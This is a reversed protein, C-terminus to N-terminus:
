NNSTTRTSYSYHSQTWTNLWRVPERGYLNKDVGLMMDQRIKAVATAFRLRDGEVVKRMDATLPYLKKVKEVTATDNVWTDAGMPTGTPLTGAELFDRMDDNVRRMGDSHCAICSAGTNLRQNAVPFGTDTWSNIAADSASALLNYDRVILTFADIRRQNFGGLLEYGQLGNPLDWIVEEASQQLGATGTYYRCNVFDSSGYNTQGECGAPESSGKTYAQALTAFFSFDNASGFTGQPSIAVPIPHAWFPWKSVHDKVVQRTKDEQGTFIDFTKWYMGGAKTRARFLLRSDVTIAQHVGMWQYSEIGSAHDVGLENELEISSPPLAMISSYADPRTLTYVLQGAEVYSDKFGAVNAPPAGAGEVNGKLVRAWVLDAFAPDQSVAPAFNMRQNFFSQTIKTGNVDTANGFIADDDSGGWLLKTIGKNYGWYSRADFRYVLGKGDIDTPNVIQPAWRAVSNLAKSVAVRAVNLEEATAGSDHIEHLSVYKIYPADAPSVKARDAAIAAVVDAEAVQTGQPTAWPVAPLPNSLASAWAKIATLIQNGADKCSTGFCQHRDVTMRTVLRSAEPTRLNARTLAYEHALAPDQDAHMPAQSTGQTNHCLGCNARLLPYLTNQFAALSSAKDFNMAAPFSVQEINVGGSGNPLEGVL